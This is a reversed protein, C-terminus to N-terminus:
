NSTADREELVIAVGFGKQRAADGTIVDRVIAIKGNKPGSPHVDGPEYTPDPPGFDSGAPEFTDGKKVFYGYRVRTYAPDVFDRNSFLFGERVGANVFELATPADPFVAAEPTRKRARATRPTITRQGQTFTIVYDWEKMYRRRARSYVSSQRAPM